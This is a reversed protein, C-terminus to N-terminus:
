FNKPVFKFDFTAWINPFSNQNKKQFADNNPLVTTAVRQAVKSFM